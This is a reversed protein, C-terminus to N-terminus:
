DNHYVVYPVYWYVLRLYNYMMTANYESKSGAMSTWCSPCEETVSPWMITQEESLTPKKFQNLNHRETQLRVNIGNHIQLLWLPFERWSEFTLAKDSDLLRDCGEYACDDFEQVFSKACEDCLFFNRIYERLIMAAKRPSELATESTKDFVQRNYEVLGVSIIHLLSWLGCTFPSGHNQCTESWDPVHPPYQELVTLWTPQDMLPVDEMLSTVLLHMRWPPLIIQLLRFFQTLVHRKEDSLPGAEVFVNDKMATYFTLYADAYIEERSRQPNFYSPEMEDLITKLNGNNNPQEKYDVQIVNNPRVHEEEYTDQVFGEGLFKLLMMPQLYASNLYKGTTSGGAQYVKIKPYSHVRQAQCIYKYTLCSVAFFQVEVGAFLPQQEQSALTLSDFHRAFQVYQPAFNLCHPCNGSSVYFYVVRHSAYGTPSLFDPMEKEKKGDQTAQDVYYEVVPDATKGDPMNRFLFESEQAQALLVSPSSLLLFITGFLANAFSVM